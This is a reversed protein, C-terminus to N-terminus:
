LWRWALTSVGPPAAWAAAWGPAVELDHLVCAPGAADGPLDLPVGAPAAFGCPPQRLGLGAAKLLAEKRTWLRLLAQERGAQPLARLFDLESPCCIQGALADLRAHAPIAEVDVGLVAAHAAALMVQTGSHSLSTAWGTGPLQPQGSAAFRLPVAAAALDLCCGLLVRWAAHALVYTTRDRDFRFRAAREREQPGLLGLAEDTDRSWRGADFLLAYAVESRPPQPVLAAAAQTADELFGGQAV